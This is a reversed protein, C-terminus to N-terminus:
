RKRIIFLNGKKDIKILKVQSLHDLYMRIMRQSLPNEVNKLYRQYLESVTLPKKSKKIISLLIKETPNLKEKILKPKVEEIKEVIKKVHKVRVKSDNEREAIRGAKLLCELGVRVDGGKRIANNACLAIIAREYDFFALDAREKLIDKMELFSYPKFEIEYISLSSKIRPEVKSFIYRDNSIFILAIKNEVYQNIRLLDYLLSQDRYILQDVEDLAIIM